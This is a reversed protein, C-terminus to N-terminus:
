PSCCLFQLWQHRYAWCYHPCQLGRMDPGIRQSVPKIELDSEGMPDPLASASSKLAQVTSTSSCMWFPFSLISIFKTPCIQGWNISSGPVTSQATTGRDWRMDKSTLGCATLRSWATLETSPVGALAKEIRWVGKSFPCLKVAIRAQFVTRGVGLCPTIKVACWWPM